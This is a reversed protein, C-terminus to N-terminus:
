VTSSTAVKPASGPSPLGARRFFLSACAEPPDLTELALQPSLGLNKGLSCSNGVQPLTGLESRELHTQRFPLVANPGHAPAWLGLLPRRPARLGALGLRADEAEFM